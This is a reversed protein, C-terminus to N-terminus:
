EVAKLVPESAIVNIVQGPMGDEFSYFIGVKHNMQPM